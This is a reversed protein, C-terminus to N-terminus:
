NSASKKYDLVNLIFDNRLSFVIDYATEKDPEFNNTFFFHVANPYQDHYTFPYLNQMLFIPDPNKQGFPMFQKLHQILKRSIDLPTIEADIKLRRHTNMYGRNLEVYESWKAKFGELNEPEIMLGAARAHGGYQILYDECYTFANVLNFGSTCRGECVLAGNKHTFFLAPIMYTGAIYTAAMGLLQTDIDNYKDFFIFYDDKPELHQLFNITDQIKSEYSDKESILKEIIRPKEFKSALLLELGLNNGIPVRGSSIIKYIFSIFSLKSNIDDFVNHYHSLFSMNLDEYDFWRRLAELCFIRNVGTLPAKDAITAVATWLLYGGDFEIQLQEAMKSILLYVIGAGCLMKEPYNCDEQKPNVITYAEPVKQPMLHHDTIIVDINNKNLTAVGEISSSGGDVTIVLDAKQKLAFEIFSTQMGHNERLRNPIFYYHHQSGIKELFDFLIYTSIVGDPDDDGFIIIKEKKWLATLIREVATDLNKLLSADPLDDLSPNLFSEDYDRNALIQEVPDGSITEPFIWRFM